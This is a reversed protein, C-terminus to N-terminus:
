PQNGPKIFTITAFIYMQRTFNSSNKFEASVVTIHSHIKAKISRCFFRPEHKIGCTYSKWQAIIEQPLGKLAGRNKKAYERMCIFALLWRDGLGTKRKRHVYEAASVEVKEGGHACRMCGTTFVHDESCDRSAAGGLPSIQFQVKGTEWGHSLSLIFPLPHSPQSFILFLPHPLTQPFTCYSLYLVHVLSSYLCWVM